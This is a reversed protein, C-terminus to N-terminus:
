SQALLQDYAGSPGRGAMFNLFRRVFEARTLREDGDEDGADQDFATRFLEQYESLSVVEDDDTDTTDFLVEAVRILAPGSATARAYETGTIRGDLDTDLETQLERWWDAFATFLRDEEQTDLDLRTAIERAMAALDPWDLFGNGTQDLVDAFFREASRRAPASASVSTPRPTLLRFLAGAKAAGGRLSALPDDGRSPTYTPDFLSMATDMRTWSSPLLRTAIGTSLFAAHTLTRGGPVEPLGLRVRLPAPLSAVTIATVVPSALARGTAWVAPHSRLIPPAPVEPFLRDLIVRVSETNELDEEIVREYYGWFERLTPPLGGRPEMLALFAQFEAYLRDLSPGDFSEGSLRCMTVTSEFMTAVVWARVGPDMADYPRGSASSGNIRAHLRNLRAAERQRIEPDPDVMRQTSRATNRLRRWPHAVFTSNAMLAADVQPHAAEMVIARTAVLGWRAQRTLPYLLSGPGLPDTM